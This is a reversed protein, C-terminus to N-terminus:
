LYPNSKAERDIRTEPGHGPFVRTTGPLTMIHRSIGDMLQRPNGGPLDARGVSGAFLTDGSFLLGHDPLSFVVGDTAHGPVHMVRIQLGCVSLEEGHAVTQDVTFPEVRIPMGWARGVAELTLDESYNSFALVRAGSAQVALADEVHDYHQHTLLLTAVKVGADDLWAAVGAPADVLVNGDPGEVLYGNTEVMGGTFCSIKM